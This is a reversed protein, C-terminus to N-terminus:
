LEIIATEGGGLVVKPLECEILSRDTAVATGLVIGNVAIALRQSPLRDKVIFPGGVLRLVCDGGTPKPIELRSLPASTWVFRLEPNAWGERLYPNVTAMSASFLGSSRTRTPFRM